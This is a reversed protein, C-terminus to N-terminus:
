KEKERPCGWVSLAHDTSIVKFARSVEDHMKNYRSVAVDPNLQETVEVSRDTDIVGTRRTGWDQNISPPMDDKIPVPFLDQPLQPRGLGTFFKIDMVGNKMKCRVYSVGSEVGLSGPIGSAVNHRLHDSVYDEPCEDAAPLIRDVYRLGYRRVLIPGSPVIHQLALLAPELTISAFQEFSEYRSSVLVLGSDGVVLATTGEENRFINREQAISFQGIQTHQSTEVQERSYSPLISRIRNHFQPLLDAFGLIPDFYIGAVVCALPPNVWDRKSMSAAGFNVGFTVSKSTLSLSLRVLPANRPQIPEACPDPEGIDGRAQVGSFSLLGPVFRAFENQRLRREAM